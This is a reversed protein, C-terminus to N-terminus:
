KFPMDAEQTELLARPSLKVIGIQLAKDGTGEAGGDKKRGSATRAGPSLPSSAQSWSASRVFKTPPSRRVPSVSLRKPSAAHRQSSNRCHVRPSEAQLDGIDESMDEIMSKLHKLEEKLQKVGARQEDIAVFTRITM